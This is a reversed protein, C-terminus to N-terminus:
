TASWTQVNAIPVRKRRLECGIVKAIPVRKRRFECRDHHSPFLFFITTSDGMKRRCKFTMSFAGNKTGVHESLHQKDCCNSRCRRERWCTDQGGPIGGFSAVLWSQILDSNGAGTDDNGAQVCTLTNRFLWPIRQKMSALRNDHYAVWVWPKGGCISAM